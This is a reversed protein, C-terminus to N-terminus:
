VMGRQEKYRLIAKIAEEHTMGKKVRKYVTQPAINLERCWQAVCKTEGNLTVNRNCHVNQMQELQTSWRCNEQSYNGNNDIRDISYKGGDQPYTSECWDVFFIPSYRWEDCVSIGRAGYNKYSPEQKYYCRRIMDNWVKYFRNRTLNHTRRTTNGKHCESHGFRACGCSKVSGSDFQYPFLMVEKESGCDCSCKLKVRGAGEPYIVDVVTLKNSKKGIYDSPNIKKKYSIRPLIDEKSKEAKKYRMCGCSKIHGSLVRYPSRTIVNGCICRFDWMKSGDKELTKSESIPTLYFIQKDKYDELFYKTQFKM